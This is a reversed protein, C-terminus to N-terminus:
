LSSLVYTAVPLVHTGPGAILVSLAVYVDFWPLAFSCFAASPSIAGSRGEEWQLCRAMPSIVLVKNLEAKEQGDSAAACNDAKPFCSMLKACGGGRGRGGVPVSSHSELQSITPEACGDGSWVCCRSFSWVCRARALLWPSLFFFGMCECCRIFVSYFFFLYSPLLSSIPLLCCGFHVACPFACFLM